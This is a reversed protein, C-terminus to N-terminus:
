KFCLVNLQMFYPLPNLILIHFFKAKTFSIGRSSFTALLILLNISPYIKSPSHINWLDIPKKPIPYFHTSWIQLAIIKIHSKATSSSLSNAHLPPPPHKHFSLHFLKPSSAKTKNGKNNITYCEQLHHWKFKSHTEHCFNKVPHQPVKM